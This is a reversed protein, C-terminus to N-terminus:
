GGPVDSSRDAASPAMVPQAAVPLAMGRAVAARVVLWAVLAVCAYVMAVAGFVARYSLNAAITASLLPAVVRASAQISNDLGYTAGQNGPPAWLNMLAGVSPILGGVAFGSLSQLIILQWAETVFFPPLTLLVALSASMWLIKTHGIRDGLRGLWVAAVAGSLAAAGTILGTTSAAGQATGMLSMVFLALMPTVLSVALSRLFTLSYLGTMGPAKLLARYDAWMGKQEAAPRPVFDEEVFFYVGLGAIALLAGTLWFSARFGFADGLLGGVIPGGAVGVWRGMNMLGLAYGSEERPTNAAVLANAAAVVGSVAGQMARLALLQEVNQVFGMLAVLAAAGLTARELMLKRGRRDAVGGWVPSFVMMTFAQASFVMGAWFEIGGTTAVGLERVYLPLFPFILSFGATSLLQVVFLIYLNRRWNIIQSNRPSSPVM